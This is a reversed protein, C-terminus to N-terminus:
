NFAEIKGSEFIKSCNQLKGWLPSNKYIFQANAYDIDVIFDGNESSVLELPRKELEGTRIIFVDYKDQRLFKLSKDDIELINRKYKSFTIVRTAVYDSLAFGGTKDAIEMISTIEEETLYYTYFYTRKVLPNDSAVWDNSVCLMVMSFFLILALFKNKTKYILFAVGYAICLILFIFAYEGWREFNLNKGLKGILLAPGPFAIFSLIFGILLFIKPFIFSKKSNFIGLTGLIIFFLLISFQLYNFLENIPLSEAINNTINGSPVSGYLNGIIKAYLTPSFYIWYFFTSIITFNFYNFTLKSRIVPDGYIIGLVYIVLFICLLFPMSAPHYIITAFTVFILLFKKNKNKIDFILGLLVIELYSIASRPIGAMGFMIVDPYFVAVLSSLLAIQHSKVLKSILIYISLVMFSYIIGCTFFMIKHYPLSLGTIYYICSILIHWLPFQQYDGFIESVHGENILNYILWAHGLPDTRSIYFYYHFTVGFLLSIMLVMCQYLIFYIQSKSLKFFLIEILIITSMLSYIIFYSLPRIESNYILFISILLCIFFAISILIFLNRKLDIQEYLNSKHILYIIPAFISPVAIYIGLIALNYKGFITPILLGLISVLPLIYIILKQTIALKVDPKM